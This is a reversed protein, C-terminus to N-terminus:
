DKRQKYGHNVEIRDWQLSLMQNLESNLKQIIEDVVDVGINAKKAIQNINNGIRKLETQIDNVGNTLSVIEQLYKGAEDRSLSNLKSLKTKRNLFVNRVLDAKSVNLKKSQEDIFNYDSDDFRVTVKKQMKRVESKKNKSLNSM